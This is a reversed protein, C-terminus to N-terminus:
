SAYVATGALRDHLAQRSEGLTLLFGLTIAAAAFQSLTEFLSMGTVTALFTLASGSNKLLYRLLLTALPAAEGTDKRIILGIMRKGPSAGTFAEILGYGFVLLTFLVATLYYAGAAGGAVGGAPGALTGGLIAGLTASFFFSIIGVGVLVILFDLIAAGLRPGFGKRQM